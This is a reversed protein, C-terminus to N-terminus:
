DNNKEKRKVNEILAHLDGRQQEDKHVIVWVAVQQEDADVQYVIRFKNEFYLERYGALPGTLPKGYKEPFDELRSVKKFFRKQVEESRDDLWEEAGARVVVEYSM